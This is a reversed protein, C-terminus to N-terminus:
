VFIGRLEGRRSFEKQFETSHDGGRWKTDRRWGSAPISWPHIGCKASGPVVCYAVKLLTKSLSNKIEPDTLLMVESHAYYLEIFARELHAAATGKTQDAAKATKSSGL